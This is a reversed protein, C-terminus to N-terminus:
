FGRGCSWFWVSSSSVGGCRCATATARQRSGERRPRRGAVSGQGTRIPM